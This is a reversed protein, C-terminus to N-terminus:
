TRLLNEITRESPTNPLKALISAASSRHITAQNRSRTLGYEEKLVTAIWQLKSDRRMTEVTRLAAEPPERLLADFVLIKNKPHMIERNEIAWSRLADYIKRDFIARECADSLDSFEQEMSWHYQAFKLPDPFVSPWTTKETTADFPFLVSVM